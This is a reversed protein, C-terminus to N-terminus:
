NSQLYSNAETLAKFLDSGESALDTVPFGTKLDLLEIGVLASDYDYDILVQENHEVTFIQGADEKIKLYTAGVEFDTTLEFGGTLVRQDHDLDNL